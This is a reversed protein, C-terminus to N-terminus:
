SYGCQHPGGWNGSCRGSDAGDGRRNRSNEAAEEESVGEDRQSPACGLFQDKEPFRRIEQRVPRLALDGLGRQEESTPFSAPPEALGATEPGAARPQCRLLAPIHAGPPPSHTRGVFRTPSLSSPVAGERLVFVEAGPTGSGALAAAAASRGRGHEGEGSEPIELSLQDHASGARRWTPSPRFHRERGVWGDRGGLRGVETGEM